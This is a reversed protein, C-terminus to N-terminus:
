EVGFIALMVSSSPCKAHSAKCWGLGFTPGRLPLGGGGGAAPGALDQQQASCCIHVARCMQGVFKVVERWSQELTQALDVPICPVLRDQRKMRSIVAPSDQIKRGASERPLLITYALLRKYRGVVTPNM